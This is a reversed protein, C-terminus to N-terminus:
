VEQTIQAANISRSRHYVDSQLHPSPDQASNPRTAFDLGAIGDLAPCFIAAGKARLRRIPEESTM